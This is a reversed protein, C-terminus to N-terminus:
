QPLAEGVAPPPVVIAAGKRRARLRFLIPREFWREAVAIGTVTLAIVALGGWPRLSAVSTGFLRVMSGTLVFLLPTHLVYMPYSWAGLLGFWASRRPTSSVNAMAVIALPYALLVCALDLTGGAPLMFSLLVMAFVLWWPASLSLRGARHLRHLGVGAFFSFGVRALGGAFGSWDSGVDLSGGSSAVVILAGAGIVIPLALVAGRLVVFAAAFALNVLLEFFISWAAPDLPYLMAKGSLAAPVPLLLLAFPLSRLLAGTSALVTSGMAMALGFAPLALCLGLAYAPYLREFRLRMFAVTSLGTELRRHYAHGLVFGSLLFFLDVALYAHPLWQTAGLLDHAHYVLVALAAIGRLGDLAEFAHPTATPQM